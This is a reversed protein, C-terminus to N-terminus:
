LKSLDPFKSSVEGMVISDRINEDAYGRNESRKRMIVESTHVGGVMDQRRSGGVLPCFFLPYLFIIDRNEKTHILPIVPTRRVRGRWTPPPQKRPLHAARGETTPAWLPCPLPRHQCTARGQDGQSSSTRIGSGTWRTIQLVGFSSGSNDVSLDCSIWCNGNWRESM